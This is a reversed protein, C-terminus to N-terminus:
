VPNFTRQPYKEQINKKKRWSNSEQSDTNESAENYERKVGLEPTPEEEPDKLVPQIETGACHERDARNQLKVSKEMLMIQKM